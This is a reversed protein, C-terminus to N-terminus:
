PGWHAGSFLPTYSGSPSGARLCESYRQEAAARCVGRIQSRSYRSGGYMAAYTQCKVMDSEYAADCEEEIHGQEEQSRGSSGSNSLTLDLQFPTGFPTMGTGGVRSAGGGAIVSALGAAHSVGLAGAAAPLGVARVAMAAAEPNAAVARALAKVAKRAARARKARESLGGSGGGWRGGERTGAPVRPQTRSYKLDVGWRRMTLAVRAAALEHAARLLDIRLDDGMTHIDDKGM